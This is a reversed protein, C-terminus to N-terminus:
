TQQSDVACLEKNPLTFPLCLLHLNHSVQSPEIMKSTFTEKFSFFLGKIKRLIELYPVCFVASLSEYTIFYIEVNVTGQVKPGPVLLSLSPCCSTISAPFM